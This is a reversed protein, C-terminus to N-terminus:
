KLKVEGPLVLNRGKTAVPKSAPLFFLALTLAGVISAADAFGRPSEGRFALRHLTEHAPQGLPCVGTVRSRLGDEVQSFPCPLGLWVRAVIILAAALHPARFRRHRIWNWRLLVGIIVLVLGGWVFVSFLAHALAVLDAALEVATM